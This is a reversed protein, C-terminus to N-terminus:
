IDFIYKGFAVEQGQSNITTKIVYYPADAREMEFEFHTPTKTQSLSKKLRMLGFIAGECNQKVFTSTSEKLDHKFDSIQKDIEKICKERAKDYGRRHSLVNYGDEYVYDDEVELPPLLPVGELIPADNLPLHAIIKKMHFNVKGENFYIPGLRGAKELFWDGQKIESDDVVLLYNETKILEKKM